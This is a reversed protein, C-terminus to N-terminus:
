QPLETWTITVVDNVIEVTGKGEYDWNGSATPQLLPKAIDSVAIETVNSAISVIKTAFVKTSSESLVVFNITVNRNQSVNGSSDEGPTDGGPTDGEPTDGGPTDGEPIDGGPTDGEPTDEGPTDGEPTDGGPTDGEPADGGPTSNGGTTNGSNTSGSSYDPTLVPISPTDQETEKETSDPTLVPISPIGQETEKETSDPTLVPISPISQGIQQKKKPAENDMESDIETNDEFNENQVGEEEGLSAVAQKLAEIEEKSISLEEGRDILDNLFDYTIGKMEEYSINGTGVYESQVDDGWVLVETGKQVLVPEAITGDPFVLNCEVEGGFVAVKVYSHGKEDITIEVRFTTGRVAMTSNPTTVQYSSDESLPNDIQNVIAGKELYISTKSDVSNGTAQLSIKSDPEVLIYKDEDLKLQISSNEATEVMDGSQLQMNNYAEMNNGQREVTATGEIKYVQIQRYEEKKGCGVVFSFVLLILLGIVTQWKKINLANTRM